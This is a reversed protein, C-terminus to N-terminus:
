IREGRGNQILSMWVNEASGFVAATPPISPPAFKVGTRSPMEGTRGDSVRPCQGRSFKRDPAMRISLTENKVRTRREEETLVRYRGPSCRNAACNLSERLFAARAIAGGTRSTATRAGSGGACVRCGLCCFGGVGENRLGLPKQDVGLSTLLRM